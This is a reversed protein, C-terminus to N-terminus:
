EDDTADCVADKQESGMLGGWNGLTNLRGFEGRWLLPHVRFSNM